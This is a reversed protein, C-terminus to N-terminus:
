EPTIRVSAESSDTLDVLIRAEYGASDKAARLWLKERRLGTLRFRGAADTRGLTVGEYDSLRPIVTAGKVPNGDADLVTGEVTGARLLAVDQDTM